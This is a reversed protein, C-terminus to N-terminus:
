SLHKNFWTVAQKAAGEYGKDGTAGEDPSARVAFGHHCGEWLVFEYTGVGAGLKEKVTTETDQAAKKNFQIDIEAVACSYPVKFTGIAAVVDDPAKLASPHATFVADVLAKDGGGETVPECALKTVQYGGWCFGAVGLKGDSPMAGRVERAYRLCGPFAKPPNNYYMFPAAGGLTRVLNYAKGMYMFPNLYSLSSPVPRFLNNLAMMTQVSAAGGPFLDPALVRCGTEAAYRDALLKNNVLNLGFADCYFIITNKPEAINPPLTVYTQAGYLEKITGVSMGHHVHGTFCEPCSM